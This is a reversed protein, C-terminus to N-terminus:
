KKGKLFRKVHQYFFIFLFVGCHARKPEVNHKLQTFYNKIPFMKLVSNSSEEIISQNRYYCHTQLNKFLDFPM